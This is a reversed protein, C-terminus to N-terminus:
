QNAKQINVDNTLRAVEKKIDMVKKQHEADITSKWKVYENYMVERDNSILALQAKQKNLEEAIEENIGTAYIEKEIRADERKKQMVLDERAKVENIESQVIM